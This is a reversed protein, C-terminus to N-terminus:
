VVGALGLIGNLTLIVGAAVLGGVLLLRKHANLWNDFSKLKRTTLEPAILYLVFPVWAGLVDIAVILALSGADVADSVRATAIVQVAAIFTVSPAFILLGTVFATLPSPRSTLRRMLGPKKKSGPPRPKRRAMIVGGALAVVGLGLRLGYRPTREQPLNLHGVHLAVLVIVGMIASMLVAGALYFLSTRRPSASGLFVAAVLVATPTLAALFALGAAQGLL